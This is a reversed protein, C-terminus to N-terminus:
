NWAAGSQLDIAVGGQTQDPHKPGAVEAATQRQSTYLYPRLRKEVGALTDDKTKLLVQCFRDFSTPGQKSLVDLIGLAINTDTETSKLKNFREEEDETILNASFLLTPLHHRSPCLLKAVDLKIPKLQTEWPDEPCQDAAM